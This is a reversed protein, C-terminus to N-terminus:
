EETRDGFDTKAYNWIKLNDFVVRGSPMGQHCLLGLRGGSPLTWPGPPVVAGSWSGTNLRGDVFVALGRTGDAVGPIGAPNWVLAYHHWDSVADTGLALAYTWSGYQATGASGITGLRACLGGNAAGDNGNFHLCPGGTANEKESVGVLGPKEGWPLTQPFDILKAWFEICGAAAPVIEAPFTVGFPEQMNLEIGKGFRGPVFRGASLKGDPGVRSNRVESESGLRNWFVLGKRGAGGSVVVDFQKIHEVGISVPGFATMLQIPELNIVGTLKDGNQMDFVATERDAGMTMTNIQALPVDVSAYPTQVPGAEIGPVGIIRSGDVLNLELRLNLAAKEPEAWASGAMAVAATMTLWLAFRKM